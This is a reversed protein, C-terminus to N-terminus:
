PGRRWGPTSDYGEQDDPPAPKPFLVLLVIVIMSVIYGAAIMEGFTM